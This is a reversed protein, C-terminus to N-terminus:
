EPVSGGVAVASRFPFVRRASISNPALANPDGTNIFELQIMVAFMTVPSELASESPIAVNKLAILDSPDVTIQCPDAPSSNINVPEPSM